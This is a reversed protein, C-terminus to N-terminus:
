HCRCVRRRAITRGWEQGRPNAQSIRKPPRKEGPDQEAEAPSGETEAKPNEEQVLFEGAQNSPLDKDQRAPQEPGRFREQATRYAAGFADSTKKQHRRIMLALIIILAGAGLWMTSGGGFLRGRGLRGRM